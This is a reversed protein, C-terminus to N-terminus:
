EHIWEKLRPGVKPHTILPSFYQVIPKLRRYEDVSISGARHPPTVLNMLPYETGGFQEKFRYVGSGPNTRGFDVVDRGQNSARKIATAYLLHNPSQDWYASDSASSWIITEGDVALMLLGAVATGDLEAFLITCEEGFHSGIADFFAKPFQPSGLRRMTQVYLQYYTDSDTSSTVSLGADNAKEVNRRVETDFTSERIREFPEDLSLRFTCGSRTGGFGAARYGSVGSWPADKLTRETFRADSATLARLAAGSDADKSLLPYGYECFPQTLEGGLLGSVEFAPVVGVVEDRRPDRIMQFRPSYKFTSAVARKWSLSHFPTSHSHAAVFDNWVGTREDVLPLLEYAPRGSQQDAGHM